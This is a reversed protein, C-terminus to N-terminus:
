LNSSIRFILTFAAVSFHYPKASVLQRGPHHCESRLADWLFDIIQGHERLRNRHSRPNQASTHATNPQQWTGGALACNTSKSFGRCVMSSSILANANPGSPRM